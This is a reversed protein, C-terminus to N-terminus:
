SSGRMQTVYFMPGELLSFSCWWGDRSTANPYIRAADQWAHKTDAAVRRLGHRKALARVTKGPAAGNARLWATKGHWKGPTTSIQWSSHRKAPLM